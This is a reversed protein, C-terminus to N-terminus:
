LVLNEGQLIFCIRQSRTSAEMSPVVCSPSATSMGFFIWRPKRRQDWGQLVLWTSQVKALLQEDGTLRWPKGAAATARLSASLPCVPLCGGGPSVSMPQGSEVKPM